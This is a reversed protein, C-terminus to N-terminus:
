ALEKELEERSFTKNPHRCLFTFVKENEKGLQPKSIKTNGNLLITGEMEDYQIYPSDPVKVKVPLKLESLKELAFYLPTTADVPATNTKLEIIEKQLYSQLSVIFPKSFTVTHCTRVTDYEFMVSHIKAFKDLDIQELDLDDSLYNSDIVLPHTPRKVYCVAIYQFLKDQKDM